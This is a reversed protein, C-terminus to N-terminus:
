AHCAIDRDAGFANNCNAHLQGNLATRQADLYLVVDFRAHENM